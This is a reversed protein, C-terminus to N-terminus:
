RDRLSEPSVPHRAGGEKGTSLSEPPVPTWIAPYSGVHALAMTKRVGQSLVPALNNVLEEQELQYAYPLRSALILLGTTQQPSRIPLVMATSLGQDRLVCELCCDPTESTALALDPIRLLRDSDLAERLGSGELPFEREGAEKELAGTTEALALSNRETDLLLIGAWDLSIFRGLEERVAGLTQSLDKGEQIRQMLRFLSQLRANMTNFTEALVGIENNATLEVQHGFDGQAVREFGHVALGLPRLTRHAWWLTVGLLLLAVVVVVRNLYRNVKLREYATERLDANLDGSAQALGDVNQIVFQAAYELRPEDRDDGLASNLSGRFREWTQVARQVSAVGSVDHEFKRGGNQAEDPFPFRGSKFCSVAEDLSAVQGQLDQYYLRVDRFYTSYDRAPTSLYNMAQHKMMDVVLELRAATGLVVQDRERQEALYLAYGLAVFFLIFLGLFGALLQFSIRQHLRLQRPSAFQSGTQM